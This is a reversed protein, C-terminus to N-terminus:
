RLVAQIEDVILAASSSRTLSALVGSEGNTATWSVEYTVTGTLSFVGSPEDLTSRRTYTHTCPSRRDPEAPDWPVGPGRCTTPTAGDGSDWDVKIPTATVVATVGALTAQARLPQWPDDIWLWTAVGVIQSPAPPSTRLRPEAVVLTNAAQEAARGAAAITALPNAPDWRVLASYVEHGPEDECVLWYFEGTELSSAPGHTRDVGPGYPGLDGPPFYSCAWRPASGGRRESVPVHVSGSAIVDGSGDTVVIVRPQGDVQDAGVRPGNNESGGVRGNAGASTTSVVILAWVLAGVALSM